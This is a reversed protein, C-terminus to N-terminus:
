KFHLTSFSSKEYLNQKYFATNKYPEANDRSRDHFASVKEISKMLTVATATHECRTSTKM